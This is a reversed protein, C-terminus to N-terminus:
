IIINKVNLNAETDLFKQFGEIQLDKPINQYNKGYQNIVKLLNEISESGQNQIGKLFYTFDTNAFERFDKEFSLIYAHSM